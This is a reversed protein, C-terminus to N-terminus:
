ALIGSVIHDINADPWHEAHRLDSPFDSGVFYSKPALNLMPIDGYSDGIAALANRGLHLRALLNQLYTAKDEPWFHQITGDKQWRTGVSYDANLKKALWDVGFSWTISVLAIKIGANKLRSFGEEVGPALELENMHELLASRGFPTYWELM